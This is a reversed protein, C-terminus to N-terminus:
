YPVHLRVLRHVRGQRPQLLRCHLGHAPPLLTGGLMALPDSLGAGAQDARRASGLDRSSGVLVPCAAACAVCRAQFRAQLHRVPHRWGGLPLFIADAEGDRAVSVIADAPERSRVLWSDVRCGHQWAVTEARDLAQQGEDDYWRPLPALPLVPPVRTVYLPMVCGAQWVAECAMSLLRDAAESGDYLVLIRGLTM